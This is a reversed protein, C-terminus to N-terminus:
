YIDFSFTNYIIHKYYSYTFKSVVLAKQIPIHLDGVAEPDINDNDTCLTFHSTGAEMPTSCKTCVKQHKFGASFKKFFKKLKYFCSPLKNPAPCVINLLKVLESIATYTLKNASAYQM